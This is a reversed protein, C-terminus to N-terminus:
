LSEKGYLKLDECFSFEFIAKEELNEGEIKRKKNPMARKVYLTVTM